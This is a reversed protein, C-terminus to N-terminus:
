ILSYRRFDKLSFEIEVVNFSVLLEIISPVKRRFYDDLKNRRNLGLRLQRSHLEEPLAILVELLPVLNPTSSGPGFQTILDVPFFFLVPSLSIVSIFSYFYVKLLKCTHPTPEGLFVDFFPGISFRGDQSICNYDPFSVKTLIMFDKVFM